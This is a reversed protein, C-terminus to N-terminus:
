AALADLARQVLARAADQRYAASARHDGAEATAEALAVEWGDATPGDLVLRPAPGWGGVVMRVRGRPWRAVAVLVLPRDAPSRAVTEVQVRPALPLEVGTVLWGPGRYRERWAFIDGWPTRAEEAGPAWVAVADLAMAAAAWVSTGDAAMLSGAVTAQGRQPLPMERRLAADLGSPLAPAELLTQLSATAGALLVRGHRVEVADLGLAQLDVLALPEPQAKARPVVFLGGAVPRARPEERRLLALAEEMTTPRHYAVIM